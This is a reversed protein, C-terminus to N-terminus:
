SWGWAFGLTLGLMARPTTLVRDSGAYVRVRSGLVDLCLRAAVRLSRVVPLWLTLQTGVGALVAHHGEAGQVWYPIVSPGLVLELLEFRAGVGARLSLGDLRVSTGTPSRTTPVIMYGIRGSVVIRGRGAVSAAVGADVSWPEEGALGRQGTVEIGLRTRDSAPALPVSAPRATPAETPVIVPTPAALPPALPEERALDAVVLAVVRAAETHQAAGLDVLRARTGLTVLVRGDLWDLRLQDPALGSIRASLAESLESADFPLGAPLESLPEARVVGGLALLVLLMFVTHSAVSPM